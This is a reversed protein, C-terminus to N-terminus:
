SSTGFPVIKKMLNSATIDLINEFQYFAELPDINVLNMKEFKDREFIISYIYEDEYNGTGKNLRQTYGSVTIKKIATSINFCNSCIFFALGCVCTIYDKKLEVQTKNNIRTKGSPLERIKKDPIDEIEPLDLDIFLHGNIYKYQASFKVPVELNSFFDDLGSEVFEPEGDLILKYFSHEKLYDKKYEADKKTKISIQEEVFLKKEKEWENLRSKMELPMKNEVYDSRKQKLKWFDAGRIEKKAEGQLYNKISIEDPQKVTFDNIQYEQIILSDQNKRIETETILPPSLKFLNIFSENEVDIENCNGREQLNEHNSNNFGFIKQNNHIGTGPISTNLFVGKKGINVRVGGVGASLSPGQDSLNIRVGKCIQFSKHFRM